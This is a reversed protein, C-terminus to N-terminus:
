PKQDVWTERSQRPISNGLIGHAAQESGGDGALKGPGQLGQNDRWAYSFVGTM